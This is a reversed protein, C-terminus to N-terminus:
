LADANRLVIVAAMTRPVYGSDNEYGKRVLQYADRSGTERIGRKVLERGGNYALLALGWDDFEAHLRSLMRLAADTELAVDLRDDQAAEVTLGFSRATPKIFMWVGAGHAPNTGQRLNRYGSEVIPVALLEPPLGFHALRGSILTEYARMRRLSESVFTRGDPTGLLRNLEAVVQEDVVIPFASGAQAVAAMENAQAITVRRDKVTGPLVIGTAVLTLVAVANMAYVASRRLYEEPKSLVAEIRRLLTGAGNGDTM